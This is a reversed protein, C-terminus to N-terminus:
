PRTLILVGNADKPEARGSKAAAAPDASWGCYARLFVAAARAAMIEEKSVDESRVEAIAQYALYASSYYECRNSADGTSQCGTSVCMACALLAAFIMPLTVGIRGPEPSAAPASRKAYVSWALGLLTCIAGVGEMAETESVSGRAVLLGGGFTLVHRLFGLFVQSRM